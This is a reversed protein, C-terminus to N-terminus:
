LTNEKIIIDVVQTTDSDTRLFTDGLFKKIQSWDIPAMSARDDIYFDAFIKRSTSFPTDPCNDNVQHFRAGNKVLFEAADELMQSQRCTWLILYFEQYMWQLVEIAGPKLNFKSKDPGAGDDIITGDFDVAIITKRDPNHMWGKVDRKPNDVTLMGHELMYKRGIARVEDERLLVPSRM